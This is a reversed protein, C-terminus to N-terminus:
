TNTHQIQEISDVKITDKEQDIEKPVDGVKLEEKLIANVIEDLLEPPVPYPGDDPTCVNGSEDCVNCRNDITPDQFVGRVMVPAPPDDKDNVIYIFGDSYFWKKTMATYPRYKALTLYERTMYSYPLYGSEHGVYEFMEYSMKVRPDRFPDPVPCVTKVIYCDTPFEECETASVRETPVIITQMLFDRLSLKIMWLYLAKSRKYNVIHKLEDMFGVDHEKNVRAALSSVIENLSPNSSSDIGSM